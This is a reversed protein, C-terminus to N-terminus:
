SKRQKTSTKFSPMIPGAGIEALQKRIDRIIAARMKGATQPSKGTSERKLLLLMRHWSSELEDALSSIRSIDYPIAIENSGIWAFVRLYRATSLDPCALRKNRVKLEIGLLTHQIQVTNERPPIDLTHSRTRQSRIKDEYISPIWIDGLDRKIQDVIKM